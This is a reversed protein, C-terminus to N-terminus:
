KGELGDVYEVSGLRFKFPIASKKGLNHEIKCFFPLEEANWHPLFIPNLAQISQIVPKQTQAPEKIFFTMGSLPHAKEYVAASLEHLNKGESFGSSQAQLAFPLLIFLPLLPYVNM